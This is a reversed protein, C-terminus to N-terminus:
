ILAARDMPARGQPKNELIMRGAAKGSIRVPARSATLAPQIDTIQASNMAVLAPNPKEITSACCFISVGSSIASINMAAMTPKERSLIMETDMLLYTAQFYWYDPLIM